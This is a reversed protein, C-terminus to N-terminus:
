SSAVVTGTLIIPQATTFKKIDEFVSKATETATAAKFSEINTWRLTAQVQFPADAPFTLVDWGLLGQSEWTSNDSNTKTGTNSPSNQDPLM